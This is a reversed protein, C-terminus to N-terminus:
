LDKQMIIADEYQHNPLRYYNSRTSIRSFDYKEYLAIAGLNSVPVELFLREGKAEKSKNVLFSLLAEGFGQRQFSRSVGISLLEVEDLVVSLIGYGVLEGTSDLITGWTKCHAALLSDKMQGASWPMPFIDREIQMLTSLDNLGLPKFHIAESTKM